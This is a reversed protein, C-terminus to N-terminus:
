FTIIQELLKDNLRENFRLRCCTPIESQLFKAALQDFLEINTSRIREDIQSHAETSQSKADNFVIASIALRHQILTACVLMAQNLAGLRNEVVVVVPLQAHKAFDLNTRQRTMPSYLGGASEVVVYDTRALWGDLKADIISDDIVVGVAEAALIPVIPEVFQFPCVDSSLTAKPLHKTLQMIDDSQGDCGSAVPKYAGVRVQRRALYAVLQSAVFTKGVDTDNGVVICGKTNLKM